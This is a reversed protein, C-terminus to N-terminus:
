TFLPSGQMALSHYRDIREQRNADFEKPTTSNDDTFTLESRKQRYEIEDMDDGAFEGADFTLWKNETDNRERVPYAPRGAKKWALIELDVDNLAHHTM